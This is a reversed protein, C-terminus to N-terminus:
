EDRDSLAAAFVSRERKKHDAAATRVLQLERAVAADTPALALALLLDREAADFERCRAFAIGRRFLAKVNYKVASAEGMPASQRAAENEITHVADCHDIVARYQRMKLKVAALNLHLPAALAAIAGRADAEEQAHEAERTFKRELYRLAKEYKEAASSWNRAAYAENGLARITESAACRAAFADGSSDAMGPYDQPWRPFPDGDPGIVVGDDGDALQGCALVRAALGRAEMERLLGYGRVLRGFVLSPEASSSHGLSVAFQSASVACLLGARDRPLGSEEVFEMSTGSSASTFTFLAGHTSDLSCNSGVLLASADPKPPCTGRSHLCACSFRMPSHM